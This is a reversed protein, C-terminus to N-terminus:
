MIKIATVLWMCHHTFIRCSHDQPASLSHSPLDSSIPCKVEQLLFIHLAADTLLCAMLHKQILQAKWWRQCPTRTMSLLGCDTLVQIKWWNADLVWSPFWSTFVVLVYYYYYSIIVKRCLHDKLHSQLVIFVNILHISYLHHRSPSLAHHNISLTKRPEGSLPNQAHKPSRSGSM